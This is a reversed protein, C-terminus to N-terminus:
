PTSFVGVLAVGTGGAVGTVIATYAGPALKAILAPEFANHPQFGSAQIAAADSPNAQQQWNNNYAIVANDSSRVLTLQPDLIPNGVGLSPGAVNVVVTRPSDGDIIFGAIMVDEGLLVTGRTSINILPAM